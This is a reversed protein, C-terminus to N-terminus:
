NEDFTSVVLKIPTISNFKVLYQEGEDMTFSIKNEGEKLHKKSLVTKNRNDLVLVNYEDKPEVKFKLNIDMREKAVINFQTNENPKIEIVEQAMIKTTVVVLLVTILLLKKM